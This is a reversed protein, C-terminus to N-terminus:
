AIVSEPTSEIYEEAQGSAFYQDASTTAKIVVIVHQGPKVSVQHSSWTTSYPSNAGSALVIWDDVGTVNAAGVNNVPMRMLAVGVIVNAPQTFADAFGGAALTTRLVALRRLDWVRGGSPTGLDIFMYTSGDSVVAGRLPRSLPSQRPNAAMFRHLKAVGDGLSGLTDNLKGLLLEISAGVSVGTSM